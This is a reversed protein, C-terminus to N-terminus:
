VKKYIDKMEKVIDENVYVEGYRISIYINRLSEINERNFNEKAKRNVDFSTDSNEIVIGKKEIKILYKKYYFRIQEKLEKPKLLRRKDGKNRNIIQIFEREETYNKEEKIRNFVRSKFLKKIMYIIFLILILKTAISISRTLWSPLAPNNQVLDRFDEMSNGVESFLSEDMNNKKSSMIYALFKDWAYALYFIPWYLIKFIIDVIFFYTTKIASFISNKLKDISLILSILSISIIFIRNGNKIKEINSDHELHRM